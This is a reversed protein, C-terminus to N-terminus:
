DPRRVELAEAEPEARAPDSRPLAIRVELGGAELARASVEGGHATVVTKVISLGLGVGRDSGTRDGSFRRFPEFLPAVAEVPLKPGSNAVRLHALSGDTGTSIHVWGGDVNHRVANEVLNAVMHELLPRDGGVWAREGVMTVTIDRRDSDPRRQAVAEGVVAALEVPEASEVERASRALLLLSEILRQNRQSVGHVKEAVAQLKEVSPDPDALAVELMTQEIALPTRLEHSANAIFRRQSEFAGELRALMADFTDALEKLEDSPGALGIREHLNEESLRRATTTISKLPRLVRGAMLWGLGVSVVAMIALAIASQVLLENLTAERFREGEERLARDIEPDPPEAPPSPLTVEAEVPVIEQFAPVAPLNSRVLGYNIVLLVTGAALFLGGYFLTLRLRVTPRLAV